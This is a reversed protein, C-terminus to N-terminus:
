NTGVRVDIGRAYMYIYLCESHTNINTYRDFIYQRSHACLALGLKQAFLITSFNFM